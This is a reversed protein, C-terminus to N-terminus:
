DEVWVEEVKGQKLLPKVNELPITAVDGAQFPGYRKLDVGIIPSMPQIIRVVTFKSAVENSIKSLLSPRGSGIANKVKTMRKEFQTLKELIYKEEPTLKGEDIDISSLKAAKEIRTELLRTIFALLLTKDRDKLRDSVNERSQGVNNKASRIYSAADSYLTKPIRELEKSNL